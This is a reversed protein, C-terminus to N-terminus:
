GGSVLSCGSTFRTLLRSAAPPSVTATTPDAVPPTIAWASLEAGRAWAAWCPPTWIVGAVTSRVARRPVTPENVTLFEVRSVSRTVTVTRGHVCFRVVAATEALRRADSVGYTRALGCVNSRRGPDRLTRSFM